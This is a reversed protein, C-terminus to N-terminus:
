PLSRRRSHRVTPRHRTAGLRTVAPCWVCCVLFWTSDPSRDLDAYFARVGDFGVFPENLNGRESSTEYKRRSIARPCEKPFKFRMSCCGRREERSFHVELTEGYLSNGAATAKKHLFFAIGAREAITSLYARISPMKPSAAMNFFAVLAPHQDDLLRLWMDLWARVSGPLETRGICLSDCSRGTKGCDRRREPSRSDRPCRLEV